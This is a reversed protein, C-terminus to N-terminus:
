QVLCLELEEVTTAADIAVQQAANVDRVAQRLPEAGALDYTAQRDLPEMAMDRQSRRETHAITRALELDVTIEGNLLKWASRFTVNTPTITVPTFVTTADISGETILRPKLEDLPVTCGMMQFNGNLDTFAYLM